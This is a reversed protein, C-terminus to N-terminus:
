GSSEAAEMQQQMDPHKKEEEAMGLFRWDTGKEV